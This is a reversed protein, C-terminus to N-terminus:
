VPFQRFLRIKQGMGLVQLHERTTQGDPHVYDPAIECLPALVFSREYIRPHPVTLDPDTLMADGYLLLDLDIVRPGWRILRRRGLDQEIGQLVQLLEYPALSTAIEAVQNLFWGQDTYGVPETEYLSSTRAILIGPTGALSQRAAALYVARDGLNSGLGIYARILSLGAGTEKQENPKRPQKGFNSM